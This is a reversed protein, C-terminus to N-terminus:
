KKDPNCLKGYSLEFSSMKLKLQKQFWLLDCLVPNWLKKLEVRTSRIERKLFKQLRLQHLHLLLLLNRQKMSRLFLLM